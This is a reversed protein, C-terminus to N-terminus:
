NIPTAMMITLEAISQKLSELEGQPVQTFIIKTEPPTDSFVLFNGNFLYQEELLYLSENKKQQIIENKQIEDNFQIKLV